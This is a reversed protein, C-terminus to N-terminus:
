PGLSMGREIWAWQERATQVAAEYAAKAELYEGVVKAKRVPAAWRIRRKMTTAMRKLRDLRENWWPSEEIKLKKEETKPEETTDARSELPASTPEIEKQPVEPAPPEPPEPKEEETNAPTPRVRTPVFEAALPNLTSRSVTEELSLSPAGNSTTPLHQKHGNAVPRNNRERQEDELMAEICQEMLAEEELQQMVQKDFEEEHEMWMYDAFDDQPAAPVAPYAGPPYFAGAMVYGAPVQARPLHVPYVPPRHVGADGSGVVGGGVGSDIIVGNPM